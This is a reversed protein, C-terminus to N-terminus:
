WGTVFLRRAAKLGCKQYEHYARAARLRIQEDTEELIWADIAAKLTYAEPAMLGTTWLLPRARAKKLGEAFYKQSLCALVIVDRKNDTSGEPYRELSFDMLGNHGVFVLLDALGGTKVRTTGTRSKIKMHGRGNGSAAEFFDVVAKKIEDGKYADAVIYLKQRKHKFVCRELVPYSEAKRIEVLIEWDDNRKFFAKIGFKAGWYLNNFPDNGDGLKPPVPVIGQSKNDCLAVFIHVSKPDSQTQAWLVCVVLSAITSPIIINIKM